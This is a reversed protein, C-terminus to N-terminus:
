TTREVSCVSATALAVFPTTAPTATSCSLKVSRRLNSLVTRYNAFQIPALIAGIGLPVIDEVALMVEAGGLLRGDGGIEPCFHAVIRGPGKECSGAPLIPLEGCCDNVVVAM